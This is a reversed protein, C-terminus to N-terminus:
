SAEIGRLSFGIPVSRSDPLTFRLPYRYLSRWPIAWPRTAEPTSEPILEIVVSGDPRFLREGMRWGEAALSSPARSDFDLRLAELASPADIELEVAEGALLIFSRGDAAPRVADSRCHVTLGQHEVGAAGNWALALVGLLLIVALGAFVLLRKM